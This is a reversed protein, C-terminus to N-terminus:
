YVKVQIGTALISHKGFQQRTSFRYGPAGRVSSRSAPRSLATACAGARIIHDPRGFVTDISNILVYVTKSLPTSGPVGGKAKPPRTVAASIRQIHNDWRNSM